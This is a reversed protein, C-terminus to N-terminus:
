SVDYSAELSKSERLSILNSLTKAGMRFVTEQDGRM